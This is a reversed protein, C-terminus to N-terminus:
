LSDLFEEIEGAAHADRAARAAALGQELEARVEEVSRDLLELSRARQYYAYAYAPDLRICEAYAELAAEHEGHAAHEQGLFYRLEADEPDEVIMARLAEFRDSM